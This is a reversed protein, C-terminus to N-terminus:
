NQSALVVDLGFLNTFLDSKGSLAMAELTVDRPGTVQLVLKRQVLTATVSTVRQSHSRDLADAIRLIAAMKSINLQADSPLDHYIPQAETPMGGRHYRAVLAVQEVDFRSLGFLDTNLIIYESHCHHRRQSVFLGIEHLIAAVHLLLREHEKMRHLDQLQEFISTALKAVHQRHARDVHYRDATLEAFHLVEDEFDRNQRVAALMDGMLAAEYDHDPVGLPPFEFAEQIALNTALASVLADVGAFDSGFRRIREEHTLLSVEETFRVMRNRDIPESEGEAAYFPRLLQLELGLALIAHINEGAFDVRIQEIQGRIHQNVVRLLSPDGLDGSEIAEGTRHAGLRYSGYRVIRGNRFLLVRTNGPGVHVVLTNNRRMAALERLQAQTRLYILRTMEGDDLVQIRYGHAIRLRKVFEETNSAENLINSAVLRVSIAGMGSYERMVQRYGEIIHVCREVTSPLIQQKRFVDRALPIPQTLYDLQEIGDHHHLGILMSLSSAGLYIVVVLENGSANATTEITPM